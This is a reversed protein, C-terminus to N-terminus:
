KGGTVFTVLDTHRQRCDAYARAVNIREVYIAKASATEPDDVLVLDVIAELIGVAEDHIVVPLERYVQKARRARDLLRLREIIQDDSAVPKKSPRHAVVAAAAVTTCTSRQSL